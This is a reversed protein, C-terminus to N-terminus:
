LGDNYQDVHTDSLKGNADFDYTIMHVEEFPLAFSRVRVIVQRTGNAQWTLHAENINRIVGDSPEGVRVSTLKEVVQQTRPEEIRYKVYGVLVLLLLVCLFGGTVASAYGLVRFVLTPIM